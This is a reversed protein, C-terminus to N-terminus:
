STIKTKTINKYFGKPDAEWQHAKEFELRYAHINNMPKLSIVKTIGWKCFLSALNKINVKGKYYLEDPGYEKLYICPFILSGKEVFKCKKNYCFTHPVVECICSPHNKSNVKGYKKIEKEM